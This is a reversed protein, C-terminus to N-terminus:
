RLGRRWAVWDGGAITARGATFHPPLVYTVVTDGDELVLSTRQYWRPHDELVDLQALTADDVDFLEGMVHDTGGIGMGPHGDFAYLTYAAPTRAERVFAASALLQHNAEGRRLTGYVFVRTTM